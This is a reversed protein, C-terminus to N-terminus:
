SAPQPARTRLLWQIAAEEGLLKMRDFFSVLESEPLTPLLADVNRVIEKIAKRREAVVDLQDQATLGNSAISSNPHMAELSKREIALGVVEHILALQGSEALRQGLGLGLELATQASTDDGAQRYREALEVVKMGTQKLEALHPLALEYAAVAKAEAESWGAARYAEEANQIFDRSYDQFKGKQAAALLQQVAEETQGSKFDDFALLYNALANDPASRALAELQQRREPSAPQSNDYEGARFFAAFNVRPDHPFKEMAERLFARDGTADLAGLLSEASRGNKQLFPEVQEATLRPADGNLVRHFLNTTPQNERTAENGPAPAAPTARAPAAPTRNCCQRAPCDGPPGGAGAAAVRSSNGGGRDTFGGSWLNHAELEHKESLEM